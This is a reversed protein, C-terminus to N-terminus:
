RPCGRLAQGIAAVLEDVTVQADLDRDFAPCSDVPARGLLLNVGALLESVTVVDNDNCDGICPIEIPEVVTIAGDACTADLLEAAATSAAPNACAVTLVTGPPTAADIAVRCTYLRAGSPIPATDALSFVLARVGSCTQGRVCDRPLYSFLTADKGIEENVACSALVAGPAVHLENETAVVDPGGDVSLWVEVDVREGVTGIVVGVDLGVEGRAAGALSVLVILLCGACGRM